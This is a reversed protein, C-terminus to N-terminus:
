ESVTELEKKKDKGAHRYDFHLRAHPIDTTDYGVGFFLYQFYMDTRLQGGRRM